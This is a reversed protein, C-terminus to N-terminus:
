SITRKIAEEHELNTYVVTIESIGKIFADIILQIPTKRGYSTNDHVHFDWGM